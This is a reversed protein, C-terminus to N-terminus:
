TACFLASFEHRKKVPSNRASIFCNWTESHLMYYVQNSDLCWLNKKTKHTYLRKVSKNYMYMYNWKWKNSKRLFFNYSIM